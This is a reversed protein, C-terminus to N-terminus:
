HPCPRRQSAEPNSSPALPGPHQLAELRVRSKSRSGLATVHDGSIGPSPGGGAGRWAAGLRAARGPRGM